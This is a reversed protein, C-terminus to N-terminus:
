RPLAREVAARAQAGDVARGLDVILAAMAVESELRQLHAEEEETAHPLKSRMLELAIGRHLALAKEKAETM